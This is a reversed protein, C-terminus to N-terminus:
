MAILPIPTSKQMNARFTDFFFRLYNGEGLHAFPDKTATQSQAATTTLEAEFIPWANASVILFNLGVFASAAGLLAGLAKRSLRLVVFLGALFLATEITMRPIKSMWEIEHGDIVAVDVFAAFQFGVILYVAAALILRGVAFPVFAKFKGGALLVLAACSLGLPISYILMDSPQLASVMMLNAAYESVPANIATHLFM